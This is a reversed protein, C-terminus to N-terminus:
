QRRYGRGRRRGLGVHLAMELEALDAIHLTHRFARVALLVNDNSCAPEQSNAFLVHRDRQLSDRHPAIPENHLAQGLILDPGHRRELSVVTSVAVEISVLLDLNARCASDTPPPALSRREVIRAVPM